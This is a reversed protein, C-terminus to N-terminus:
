ISRIASWGARSARRCPTPCPWTRRTRRRELEDLGHLHLDFEVVLLVDDRRGAGSLSLSSAASSPSASPAQVLGPKRCPANRTSAENLLTLRRMSFCRRRRAAPTALASSSSASMLPTVRLVRTISPQPRLRQRQPFQHIGALGCNSFPQHAIPAQHPRAEAGRLLGHAIQAREVVALRHLIREAIRPDGAAREVVGLEGRQIGLDPAAAQVLHQVVIALVQSSARGGM